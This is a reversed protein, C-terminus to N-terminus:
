EGAELRDALFRDLAVLNERGAYARAADLLWVIDTMDSLHIRVTIPGGEGTSRFFMLRKRIREEAAEMREVSM